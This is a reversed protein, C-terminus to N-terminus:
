GLSNHHDKRIAYIYICLRFFWLLLFITVLNFYNLNSFYVTVIHFIFVSIIISIFSLVYLTTSKCNISYAVSALSYVGKVMCMSIVCFMFDLSMSRIEIFDFELLFIIFVVSLLSVLGNLFLLNRLDIHFEKINFLKKYGSIKLSSYYNSILSIPTMLLIYIFFYDGFVEVDYLAIFTNRDLNDFLFFGVLSFSSALLLNLEETKNKSKEEVKFDLRTRMFPFAFVSVVSVLFIVWINGLFDLGLLCLIFVIIPFILKWLNLVLYVKVINGILKFFTSYIILVPILFFLLLSYINFFDYKVFYDILIYSFIPCLLVWLIGLRFCYGSIKIENAQSVASTRNVLQDYGYLGLTFTINIIFLNVAFNGYSSEDM